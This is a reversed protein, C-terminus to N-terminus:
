QRTLTILNKLLCAITIPGIGGPVPTFLSAKEACAPGADGALTGGDESTGADFIVVGEKIKEPTILGPVGAGSIIIDAGAIAAESEDSPTDSTVISVSQVGQEAAWLIAPAGVLRGAGIIAVRMDSFSVDHRNAIAAIAGVVPPLVDSEGDYHIADVDHTTPVAALVKDTDIHPPLPLQVVIGDSQETAVNITKITEETTCDQMLEIVNISIGVTAAKKKKLALYKGTEFNPACTVITLRPAASFDAAATAVEDLVDKAIARGDVIM